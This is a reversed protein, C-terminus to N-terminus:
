LAQAVLPLNVFLAVSHESYNPPTSGDYMRIYFADAETSRPIDFNEVISRIVLDSDQGAQFSFDRRRVEFGGGSPPTMGTTVSIAAASIATVTLGTLDILYTPSPIAPLWTTVPVTKSTKVALDNAWDNSFDIQYNIVDPSSLKYTLKVSRVAVQENLSVSPATLQLADGPWVDSTLGTAWNASALKYTGSWAASISSAATVLAQAANRCDASSRAKPNTVSGIWTAVAPMGAAELAAQSTPNVARGVAAGVTRYNVAILEGLVPLYGKYFTITGTRLLHCEGAEAITGTRRTRVGGGPPYSTVWGSGLNTMFVSRITGILNISNAPSVLYSSPVYSIAGDYLAVPMGAIGNVVEEIELVVHAPAATDAGGFSMMGEDGVVRYVQQVRETLPCHARVRFTYQQTSDLAYSQGSVVGNILPAVSVAGSGQASTVQFGATCGASTVTTGYLGAVVGTSGPALQVGTVELLLSGGAEVPDLWVLAAQGDVGTGGNLTLGEGGLSFYLSAGSYMWYRTDIQPENFLEYNIIRAEPTTEFYPDQTLPFTATVGDGLFYETVYALPESAGCVTVDNALARDLSATLTLNALALTGDTENLAHVSTGIQTATLRGGLARYSARAQAAVLGASESWRSGPDPAFNGVPLALSLGSTNLTTSGTRATLRTLLQGATLGSAGASPTMLQTNLLIEDSVAQLAWRYVPGALGMGAYEPMPSVALYGTFFVTGDDGLIEVPQNRVPAALASNPALTVWLLCVTPENLKREITMPHAGDLAATYDLNDILIKM